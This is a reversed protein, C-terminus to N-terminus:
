MVIDSKKFIILSLLFLVGSLIVSFAIGYYFVHINTASELAAAFGFLGTSPVLGLLFYYLEGHIVQFMFYFVPSYFIIILLVSSFLSNMTIIAIASSFLSTSLFHCYIVFFISLIVKPPLSVNVLNVGLPIGILIGYFILLALFRYMIASIRNNTLMLTLLLRGEEIDKSISNGIIIGVLPLIVLSYLGIKRSVSILILNIVNAELSSPFIVIDYNLRSFLLGAIFLLEAVYARYAMRLEWLLLNKM